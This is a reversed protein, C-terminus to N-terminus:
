DIALVVTFGRVEILVSRTADALMRAADKRDVDWSTHLKIKVLKSNKLQRAIEEVVRETMGEKGIHVTAQVSQARGRLGIIKKKDM